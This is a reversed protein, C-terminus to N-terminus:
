AEDCSFSLCVCIRVTLPCDGFFSSLYTHYAIFSKWERIVNERIRIASNRRDGSRDEKSVIM